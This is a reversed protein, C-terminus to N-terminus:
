RVIGQRVIEYFQEMGRQKNMLFDFLNSSISGYDSGSLKDISGPAARNVDAIIDMIVELPSQGLAGNAGPMPTVLKSMAM